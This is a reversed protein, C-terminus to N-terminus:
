FNLEILRIELPRLQRRIQFIDSECNVQETYTFPVSVSRIFDVSAISDLSIFGTREWTDFSSGHERNLITENICFSHSEDLIIPISVELDPAIPFASYRNHYTFDFHERNAFNNSYHLYYYLLIQIKNETRTIYYNEGRSIFHSSLKSLIKYAYYIPKKIDQHTFLGVGGPFFQSSVPAGAMLDSLVCACFEISNNQNELINKIVYVARFLTDNLYNMGLDFNWDNLVLKQNQFSHKKLKKQFALLVENLIDPNTSLCNQNKFYFGDLFNVTFLNFDIMDPPCKMETSKELFNYIVGNDPFIENIFIPSAIITEKNTERITKYTSVYFDIIDEFPVFYDWSTNEHILGISLIWKNVYDNGYRFKCHEFFQKLFDSWLNKKDTQSEVTLELPYHDIIIHPILKISYIFDLVVDILSFNGIIKGDHNQYHTEM